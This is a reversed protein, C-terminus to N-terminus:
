QNILYYYNQCDQCIKSVLYEFKSSDSLFEGAPQGCIKCTQTSKALLTREQVRKDSLVEILKQIRDMQRYGTAQPLPQALQATLVRLPKFLRAPLLHTM